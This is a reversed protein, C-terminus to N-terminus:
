LQFSATALACIQVSYLMPTGADQLSLQYSRFPQLLKDDLGTQKSCQFHTLIAEANEMAM